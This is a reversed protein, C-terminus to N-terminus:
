MRRSSSHKSETKGDISQMYKDGNVQKTRIMNKDCKPQSDGEEKEKGLHLNNNDVEVKITLRRGDARM